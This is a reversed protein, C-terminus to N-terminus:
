FLKSMLLLISFNDYFSCKEGQSEQLSTLLSTRDKSLNAKTLKTIYARGNYFVCRVINELFQRIYLRTTCEKTANKLHM